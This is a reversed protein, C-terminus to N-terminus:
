CSNGFGWASRVRMVVSLDCGGGAGIMDGLYFFSDIVDLKKDQIFLCENYPRGDTTHANGKCKSCCYDPNLKLKGIVGSCKKHVWNLCRTCYISNNGDGKRCVSCPYKGSDNLTQLDVRSVMIKTNRM